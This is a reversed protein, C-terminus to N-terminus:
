GPTLSSGRSSTVKQTLRMFNFLLYVLLKFINPFLHHSHPSHSSSLICNHFPAAQLSLLSQTQTPCKMRRLATSVCTLPLTMLCSASSPSKNVRDYGGCQEKGTQEKGRTGDLCLQDIKWVGTSLWNETVNEREM